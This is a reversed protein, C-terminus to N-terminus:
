MLGSMVTEVGVTVVCGLQKWGREENAMGVGLARRAGKKKAPPVLAARLAASPMARSPTEQNEIGAWAADPWGVTRALLAVRTACAGTVSGPGILVSCGGAAGSFRSSMEIGTLGSLPGSGSGLVGGAVSPVAGAVPVVGPVGGAVGGTTETGDVGGITSPEM